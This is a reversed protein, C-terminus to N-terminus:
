GVYTRMQLGRWIRNNRSDSCKRFGLEGLRQGVAKRSLVEEGTQDCWSSFNSYLTRFPISGDHLEICREDLFQRVLDMESRYASTATLVEPPAQLGHSYWEVAGQVAWALIGDVEQILRNILTGDREVEPITVTFPILRIRRWIGEDTGEIVPKHNASFWLKLEPVFEFYDQRMLRGTLKDGGTIQKILTENLKKGSTTEMATVFRIGNLRAIATPHESNNNILFLDTSAQSAYCEGLIHSIINILTSKGNAGTGYCFFLVQERTEGTLSYGVARQVFGILRQNRSMTRNLFADFIPCTASPNYNGNIIRTIYDERRHPLLQGTQLDLTGNQCNILNKHSDLQTVELVIDPESKALEVMATIRPLSESTKAHKLIKLRAEEDRASNADEPIRTYRERFLM